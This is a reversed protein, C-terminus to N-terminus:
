SRRQWATGDSYHIRHIIIREDLQDKYKKDLEKVNVIVTPQRRSFAEIEHTKGPEIKLKSYIQRTGMLENTDPDLFQYEWYLRTITKATNNRVKIKYIYIADAELQKTQILPKPQTVPMREQTPQNPLDQARREIVAKEKRTQEMLEENRRLSDTEPRVWKRWSKELVTIGSPNTVEAIEQAQVSIISLLTLLLPLPTTKM